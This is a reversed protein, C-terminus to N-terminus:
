KKSVELEQQLKETVDHARANKLFDIMNDEDGELTLVTSRLAERFVESITFKHNKFIAKVKRLHINGIEIAVLTKSQLTGKM